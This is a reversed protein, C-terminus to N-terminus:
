PNPKKPATKDEPPPKTPLANNFTPPPAPSPEVPEASASSSPALQPVDPSPAIDETKARHPRTVLWTVAAIFVAGLLILLILRNRWRKYQPLYQEKFDHM